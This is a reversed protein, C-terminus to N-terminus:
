KGNERKQGADIYNEVRCVELKLIEGWWIHIYHQIIIKFNFFLLVKDKTSQNEEHFDKQSSIEHKLVENETLGITVRWFMPGHTEPYSEVIWYM